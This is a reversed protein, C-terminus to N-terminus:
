TKTVIIEVARVVEGHLAVFNIGLRDTLLKEIGDQELEYRLHALMAYIEALSKREAKDVNVEM